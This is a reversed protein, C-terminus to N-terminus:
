NLYAAWGVISLVIGLIMIIFLIALNSNLPQM